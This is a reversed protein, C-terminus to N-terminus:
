GKHQREGPKRDANERAITIALPISLAFSKGTGTGAEVIAHHMKKNDNSLNFKTQAIADAITETMQIQPPRPSYGNFHRSLYGDSKFVDDIDKHLSSKYNAM